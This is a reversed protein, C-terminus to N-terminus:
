GEGGIEEIRLQQFFDDPAKFMYLVGNPRVYKYVVDRGYRAAARAAREDDEVTLLLEYISYPMKKLKKITKIKVNQANLGGARETDM